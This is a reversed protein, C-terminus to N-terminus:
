VQKTSRRAFLFGHPVRSLSPDISSLDTISVLYKTVGYSFYKLKTYQQIIYLASLEPVRKGLLNSCVYSM